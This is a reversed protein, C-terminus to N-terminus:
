WESYPSGAGSHVDGVGDLSGDLPPSTIWTDNRETLPDEPISRLYRDEVLQDLGEPYRGKDAAYKDIADRMVFLSEKLANDRARDLHNFYRPAAISLLLAIVAMVVLLEILTFGRQLKM